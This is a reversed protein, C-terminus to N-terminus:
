KLLFPLVIGSTNVLVHGCDPLIHSTLGPVLKKLRLSIKDNNQIADLKGGVLLVPMTLRSLEQDTYMKMNEIRPKFNTMIANMFVVAGPDIKDKGFVMKNIAEAGRKGFMKFFLAKFIFSAKAPMIGAPTLLVLKKVREPQYSAFKIATWGGQSLGLLITQKIKLGNLLDEMWKAYASSNWSPRDSDSRGPEGPIDVAYVRFHKSYEVVNGIWSVANSSSGHLLVLPESDPSGSVIVFTNGHRTAVNCTQYPVPWLSLVKDYLGMIVRYGELSKYIPPFSNM